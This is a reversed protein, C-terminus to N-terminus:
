WDFCGCTTGITVGVLHESRKVLYLFNRNNRWKCPTGVIVGYLHCGSQGVTVYVKHQINLVVQRIYSKPSCKEVLVSNIRQSM